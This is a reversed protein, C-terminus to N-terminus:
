TQCSDTAAPLFQHRPGAPAHPLAVLHTGSAPSKAQQLHLGIMNVLTGAVAALDAASGHFTPVSCGRTPVLEDSEAADEWLPCYLELGTAAAVSRGAQDDIESPTCTAGPACINAIGLTGTRADTAVQAILATRNEGALTDLYATISHSVTADIILEASLSVASDPVNGEAITVILDDRITRLRTALADAKTQGIDVETYNQRVLLGGTITGPDCVTIASVGARAIFEAIWSGLGGCGWVHVTKGRFGNVPRNDDRRTTVEQREDSMNCWEIPINVNVIAPDLNVATGHKRAIRRLADATNAPLRGGLLHHPGGVPHPVAFVFYQETGDPSRLASALLSTLFAPSQPSIQPSRGEARDLHPDDLLTLLLAFTSAAGFPLDSMLVFVPTHHGGREASYTLDYRQTSRPILRAIQHRKLPGPERIVITPTGDAHHLVGGVAHYMATSPNFAGAAADTLWDWLRSLFGAMGSSPHWERSPDLYICLRHGQLVHPFGLFRTHDVEASPPLFMSPRIRVIFEEDDGLKLGGPHHPIDATHLGLRLTAEGDADLQPQQVIQVDQPRQRALSKLEDVLYKQWASLTPRHRRSM